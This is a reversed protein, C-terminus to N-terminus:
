GIWDVSPQRTDNKCDDCEHKPPYDDRCDDLGLASRVTGTIKGYIGVRDMKPLPPSIGHKKRDVVGSGLTPPPSMPRSNDNDENYEAPSPTKPPPCVSPPRNRTWTGARSGKHINDITRVRQIGPKASSKRREGSSAGISSGMSAQSGLRAPSQPHAKVVSKRHVDYDPNFEVSPSDPRDVYPMFPPRLPKPANISVAGTAHVGGNYLSRSSPSPSKPPSMPPSIPASSGIDPLPSYWDSTTKRPPLPPFSVVDELGPAVVIPKTSRKSKVKRPSKTFEPASAISRIPIRSKIEPPVESAPTLEVSESDSSTVITPIDTQPLRWSWESILARANSPDFTEVKDPRMPPPKLARPKHPNPTANAADRQSSSNSASSRKQEQGDASSMSKPSGSPEWIVEHTSKQSSSRPKEQSNAPYPSAIQLYTLSDQPNSGSANAQTITISSGASLVPKPVMGKPTFTPSRAGQASPPTAPPHASVRNHPRYNRRLNAEILETISDIEKKTILYAANTERDEQSIPYPRPTTGGTNQGNAPTWFETVTSVGLVGSAGSARRLTITTPIQLHISPVKRLTLKERVTRVIDHNITGRTFTSSRYPRSLRRSIFERESSPRIRLTSSVSQIPLTSVLPIQHSGIEVSSWRRTILPPAPDSWLRPMVRGYTDTNGRLSMTPKYRGVHGRCLEKMGKPATPAVQCGPLRWHNPAQHGHSKGHQCEHKRRGYRHRRRSKNIHNQPMTSARKPMRAMNLSDSSQRRPRYPRKDSDAQFQPPTLYGSSSFSCPSYGMDSSLCSEGGSSVSPSLATSCNDSPSTTRTIRNSSRTSRTSQEGQTHTRPGHRSPSQLEVPPTRLLSTPTVSLIVPTVPSASRAPTRPGFTPFYDGDPRAGRVPTNSIPPTNIRPVPPPEQKSAM